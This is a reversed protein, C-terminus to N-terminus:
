IKCGECDAEDGLDAPVESAKKEAKAEAQELQADIDFEFIDDNM